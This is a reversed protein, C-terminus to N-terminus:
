HLFPLVFLPYVYIFDGYFRYRDNIKFYSQYTALTALTIQMSLLVVVEWIKLEQRMFLILLITFSACLCVLIFIKLTKKSYIAAISLTGTKKDEEKDYLSFLLLNSLNVLFFLYFLEHWEDSSQKFPIEIYPIIVFGITVVLAIYVEKLFLYRKIRTPVLYNILFHLITLILLLGIATYYIAPVSV